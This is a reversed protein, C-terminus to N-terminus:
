CRRQRLVEYMVVAGAVSANLSNFNGMQPISILFDCHKKVLPRIGRDEGGIVVALPVKFDMDFLVCDGKVDLGAIWFEKKKLKSITNVMNTVKAIKIHELAGASARSVSPTPPVARDRLMIVGDVGVCLATRVIAGFNNPDEVGDLLLLFPKLSSKKPTQLIDEINVFPYLTVVAVVGQHRQGEVMSAIESNTTKTILIGKKNALDLILQIRHALKKSKEYAIYLSLIKRRDAKLAEYVSNIGFLIESSKQKM